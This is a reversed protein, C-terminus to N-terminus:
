TNQFITRFFLRLLRKCINQLIFTRLRKTINVFFVQPLIKKQYLQLGSPLKILFLSLCLHEQSLLLNKLFLKGLFCLKVVQFFFCTTQTSQRFDNNCFSYYPLSYLITFYLYYYRYDNQHQAQVLLLVCLASM